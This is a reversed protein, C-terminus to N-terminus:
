SIKMYSNSILDYKDFIGDYREKLQRLCWTFHFFFSKNFWKFVKGLQRKAEKENRLGITVDGMKLFFFIVPNKLSSNNFM